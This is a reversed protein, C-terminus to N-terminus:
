CASQNAALVLITGNPGTVPLASQDEFLVDRTTTWGAAQRVDSALPAPLMDQRRYAQAFLHLQGLEKVAAVPRAAEPLKFLRTPISELRTALGAAKADVLRQM